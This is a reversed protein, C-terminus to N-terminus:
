FFHKNRLGRPPQLLDDGNSYYHTVLLSVAYLSMYELEILACYKKAKPQINKTTSHISLFTNSSRNQKSFIFSNLNKTQVHITGGLIMPFEIFHLLTYFFFFISLTARLM